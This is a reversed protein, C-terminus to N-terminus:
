LPELEEREYTFRNGQGKPGRPVHDVEVIYRYKDTVVTSFTRVTGTGTIAALPLYTTNYRPCLRVRTGPRLRPVGSERTM